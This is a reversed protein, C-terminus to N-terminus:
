SLPVAWWKTPAALRGSDATSLLALTVFWSLVFTSNGTQKDLGLRCNQGIWRRSEQKMGRKTDRAPSTQPVSIYSLVTEKGM